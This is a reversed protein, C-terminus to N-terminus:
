KTAYVIWMGQVYSSVGRRDAEERPLEYSSHCADVTRFGPLLEAFEEKSFFHALGITELGIRGGGAQSELRVTGPDTPNQDGRHDLYTTHRDSLMYGVFLGGPKLVRAVEAFAAKRDERTLHQFVCSELVGDFQGAPFPLATASGHELSALRETLGRAQFNRRALELAAPSIDIGSAKIGREALWVLNPGAGCGVELFHLNAYDAPSMRARLYHSVSRVLAEVPATNYAAQRIQDRFSEEWLSQMAADRGTMPMPKAAAPSEPQREASPWEVAAGDLWALVRMGQEDLYARFEGERDRDVLLVYRRDGSEVLASRYGFQALRGNLSPTAYYGWTKRVIDYERGNESVLTIQEDPALGIDAVHSINIPRDAHGVTFRRPPTRLDFQM